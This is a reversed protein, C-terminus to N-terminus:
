DGDNKVYVEMHSDMNLPNDVYIIKFMDDGDIIRKGKKIDQDVECLFVHTADETIKQANSAGSSPSMMDFVGSIDKEKAWSETYGGMGDDVTSKSHLEFTKFLEQM